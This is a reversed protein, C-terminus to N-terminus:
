WRGSGPDLEAVTGASSMCGTFATIGVLDPRLVSAYDPVGLIEDVVAGDLERYLRAEAPGMDAGSHLPTERPLGHCYPVVQYSAFM